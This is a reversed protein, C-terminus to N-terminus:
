KQFAERMHIEQVREDLDKQFQRKNSELGVQPAYVSIVNFIERDLILKILLIRDGKRRVEVVNELLQKDIIVSM